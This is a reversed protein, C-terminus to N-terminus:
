NTLEIIQEMTEGDVSQFKLGLLIEQNELSKNWVIEAKFSAIGNNKHSGQRNRLVCDVAKKTPLYNHKCLVKLGGRSMDVLNCIYSKATDLLILNLLETEAIRKRTYQRKEEFAM